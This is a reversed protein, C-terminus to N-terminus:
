PSNLEYCQKKFHGYLNDVARDFDEIDALYVGNVKRRQFINFFAVARIIDLFKQYNRRNEKNRWDIAKAFPIRIVYREKDLIDFICRCILIDDDVPSYALAEKDNIHNHVREDQKESCDVDANLFRNALQEDSIGDVSSFWFVVREPIDFVKLEGNVVTRHKTVEQFCSTSQKITAIIDDNLHTDDSYIITGPQLTKDYFLAKGSLSGSIYKHTPLLLTAEKMADSKGKGSEGSPKIHLGMDSNLIYTSGISCLCNEGLNTDGVHRLNWTERMFDFADGEKLITYALERIREPYENLRGDIGDKEELTQEGAQTQADNQKKFWERIAADVTMKIDKKNLRFKESVENNIFVTWEEANMGRLDNLIFNKFAKIKELSTSSAPIVQQNLKYSWLRVSSEILGKFDDPSHDKMYDAIDIKDLGEPKPLEIIRAEIRAGELAEATSLAGKLGAKNEENDNCIYVTKLGKTLSLLKPQDKERFQVTVPSICSFGAQLMVICDAVGETIICYDSGRLSDEGYFYSNQVAPSVYPFKDSHVLLKQYKPPKEGDKLKPTEETQRGILYVVKGNKWYPFVIRGAFVEGGAMGGNVYVLGSKKLTTKDLDKLNRNVVAYGINLRDVTDPTIGWKETIFKYLEPTLNKHYVDAAETFLNHIDAKEKAANREEETAEELEVGAMAAAIKLVEPFDSGRTDRYGANYGIWDIVDGGSGNKHDKWAQLSESVKLSEGSSGAKGVTGVYEGGGRHHLSIDRGIVDVINLRSKIEEIKDRNDASIM